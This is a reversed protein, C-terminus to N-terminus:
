DELVERFALRFLWENYEDIRKIKIREPIAVLLVLAWGDEQEMNKLLDYHEKVLLEPTDKYRLYFECASKLRQTTKHITLMIARDIDGQKVLLNKVWEKIGDMSFPKPIM